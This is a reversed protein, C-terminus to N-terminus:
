FHLGLRAGLAIAQGYGSGNAALLPAKAKQADTADPNSQLNAIVTPDVGPRTLGMAEWSVNAGLSFYKSPFIDLGGGLRVNFGDIQVAGATSSLVGPLSGLASYGAAIALHPEFIGLPIRFGLEGDLSFCQWESFFGVRGRPGLRLFFLQLGLGAGIFGGSSSSSEFGASLTQENATFTELGIYEYGGELELWFWSLGRGSDEEESKDLKQETEGKVQGDAVKPDM